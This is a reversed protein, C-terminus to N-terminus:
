KAIKSKSKRTFDDLKKLFFHLDCCCNKLLMNFNSLNLCNWVWHGKQCSFQAWIMNKLACMKYTLANSGSNTLFTKFQSAGLGLCLWCDHLHNDQNKKELRLRPIYVLIKEHNYTYM